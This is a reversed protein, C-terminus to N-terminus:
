THHKDQLGLSWSLAWSCCHGLSGCCGCCGHRTWLLISLLSCAVALSTLTQFHVTLAKSSRSIAQWSTGTHSAFVRFFINVHHINGPRTDKHLIRSCKIFLNFCITVLLPTPAFAGFAEFFVALAVISSNFAIGINTLTDPTMVSPLWFICGLIWWFRYRNITIDLILVHKRSFSQVKWCGLMTSSIIRLLITSM